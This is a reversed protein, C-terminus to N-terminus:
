AVFGFGRNQKSLGVCCGSMNCIPCEWQLEAGDDEENQMCSKRRRKQHPKKTVETIPPFLWVSWKANSWKLALIVWSGKPTIAVQFSLMWKQWYFPAVQPRRCWLTVTNSRCDEFSAPEIDGCTPFKLKKLFRVRWFLLKWLLIGRSIPWKCLNCTKRNSFLVSLPLIGLLKDPQAFRM